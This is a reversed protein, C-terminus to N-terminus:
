SSTRLVVPDIPTPFSVDDVDVEVEAKDKLAPIDERCGVAVSADCASNSSSSTMLPVPSPSSIM